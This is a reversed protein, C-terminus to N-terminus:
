AVRPSRARSSFRGPRLGASAGAPTSAVIGVLRDWPGRARIAGTGSGVSELTAMAGPPKIAM